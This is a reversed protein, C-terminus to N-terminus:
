ASLDSPRSDSPQGGPRHNDDHAGPVGGAEGSRAPSGSRVEAAISALVGNVFSGSRETSFRKALEVAEDLVVALPVEPVGLLEAVALRLVALDVKALRDLQWGVCARAILRDIREREEAVLRVLRAAYPDPPLPLEALVTAPSVQKAEAEYLLGLARERALRRGATLGPETPGGTTEGM